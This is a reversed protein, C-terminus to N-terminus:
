DKKFYDEIQPILELLLDVVTETENNKISDNVEAILASIEEKLNNNM